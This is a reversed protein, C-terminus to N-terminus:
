DIGLPYLKDGTHIRQPYRGTHCAIKVVIYCFKSYKYSTPYQKAYEEFMIMKIARKETLIPFIINLLKMFDTTHPRSRAQGHRSKIITALGTDDIAL